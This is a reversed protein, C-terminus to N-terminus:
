SYRGNQIMISLLLVTLFLLAYPLAQNTIEMARKM